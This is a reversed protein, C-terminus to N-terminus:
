HSNQISFTKNPYDVTLKFRSMFNNVGLLVIHLNPLFDIPTNPLTYLLTGAGPHFIEFSTTHSYAVTQGNGTNVPKTTGAQLNHGLVPAYGAPIACEDAGTDIIGHTRVHNGTHPNIIRINLVPRYIGGNCLTLPCDRIPM